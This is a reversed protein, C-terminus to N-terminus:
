APQEDMLMKSYGVIDMFLVHATEPAHVLTQHHQEVVATRKEPRTQLATQEDDKMLVSSLLDGFDLARQYRDKPEFSLAKLL